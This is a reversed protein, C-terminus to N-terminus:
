APRGCGSFENGEVVGLNSDEVPLTLKVLTFMGGAKFPFGMNGAM